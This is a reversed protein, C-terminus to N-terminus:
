RPTSFDAPLGVAVQQWVSDLAIATLQATDLVPADRTPKTATTPPGPINSSRVSVQVGDAGLLNVQWEQEGGAARKARNVTLVAGDPRPTATCTPPDTPPPCFSRESPNGPRQRIVEVIVSGEGRADTVGYAAMARRLPRGPGLTTESGLGMPKSLALGAPLRARFLELMQQATVPVPVGTAAPSAPSASAQATGTASSTPAPGTATTTPKQHATLAGAGALLAVAAAGAVVTRRRKRRRGRQQAGVAMSDVSPPPAADVAQRLAHSFQDEFPM